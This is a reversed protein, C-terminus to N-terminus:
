EKRAQRLELARLVRPNYQDRNRARNIWSRVTNEAYGLDRAIEPVTSSGYMQLIGEDSPRPKPSSTGALYTRHRKM